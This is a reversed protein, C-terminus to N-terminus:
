KGSIAWKCFSTTGRSPRSGQLQVQLQYEGIALSQMTYRGDTDTVMDTVIGTQVNKLTVKAGAVAAGSSDTVSGRISGSGVQAGCALAAALLLAFVSGCRILWTKIIERTTMYM